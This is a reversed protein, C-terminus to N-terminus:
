DQNQSEIASKIVERLNEKALVDAVENVLIPFTGESVVKGFRPITDIHSGGKEDPPLNWIARIIKGLTSKGTSGAGHLLLWHFHIGYTGRKQKIAYSFPALLGWKIVTTFREGLHSYWEEKM